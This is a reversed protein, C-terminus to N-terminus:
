PKSEKEAPPRQSPPRPQMMQKGAAERRELADMSGVYAAKAQNLGKKARSPQGASDRMWVAFLAQVQAKYAADLAQRELELLHEEHQPYFATPVDPALSDVQAWTELVAYVVAIAAAIGVLKLWGM